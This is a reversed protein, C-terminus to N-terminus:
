SRLRLSWGPWPWPLMSPAGGVHTSISEAQIKGGQELLLFSSTTNHMTVGEANRDGVLVIVDLMASGVCLTRM